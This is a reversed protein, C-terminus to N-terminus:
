IIKFLSSLLLRDLGRNRENESIGLNIVKVSGYPLAPTISSMFFGLLKGSIKEKATAFIYIDDLLPKIVHAGFKSLDTLYFQKITSKIKEEVESWNVDEVGREFFPTCPKLFLEQSAAQPFARLFQVEIPALIQSALECINKKFAVLVPSQIDTQYWEVLIPIGSNDK